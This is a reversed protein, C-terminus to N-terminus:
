NTILAEIDVINPCGFGATTYNIIVAATGCTTQASINYVTSADLGSIVLPTLLVGSMPVSVSIGGNLLIWPIDGNKKYKFDVEVGSSPAPNFTVSEINITPM